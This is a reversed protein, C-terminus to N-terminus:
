FKKKNFTFKNQKVLCSGNFKLFMYKEIYELKPALSSNNITLSKLIEDSQEESEWSLIDKTNSM